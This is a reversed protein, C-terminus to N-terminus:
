GVRSGVFFILESEMKERDKWYNRSYVMHYKWNKRTLLAQTYAHVDKASPSSFYRVDDTLIVGLHQDSQLVSVDTFPLADKDFVFDQM